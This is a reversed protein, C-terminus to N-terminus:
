ETLYAEIGPILACEKLAPLLKFDILEQQKM